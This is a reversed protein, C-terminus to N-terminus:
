GSFYPNPRAREQCQTVKFYPPAYAPIIDKEGDLTVIMYNPALGLADHPTLLPVKVASQGRGQNESRGHSNKDGMNQSLGDGSNHSVSVRTTEGARRSQWEATTMENAGFSLVAGASGIFTEWLKPYLEKLQNLDQLIPMMQVGYGRVLTWITTFLELRGLSFFEDMMFIVKPEGKSRPRLVSQITATLVLRLWKSQRQMETPPLILYVTTPKRKVSEPDLGDKALDRAICPEDLWKTQRRAVSAISEMEKSWVAFQAAKNAMGAIGSEQMKEADAAIGIPEMDVGGGGSAQSLRERVRAMTPVLGAKRSEVVEFMIFAAVMSRASEDWHPNDQGSVTIIAEALLEARTNFDEATPDLALLPNFGDSELDPYLAPNEWKKHVNFPNLIVVREGLVDRRYKATIAALEGKPDIVVISAGSIQLLNPVFLGTSKGKGNQGIVIVGKDFPYIMKRGIGDPRVYRGIFIGDNPALGMPPQTNDTRPVLSNSM